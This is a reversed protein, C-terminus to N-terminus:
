TKNLKSFQQIIVSNHLEKHNFSTPDSLFDCIKLFFVCFPQKRNKFVNNESSFNFLQQYEPQTNRNDSIGSLSAAGHMKGESGGFARFTEATEAFSARVAM